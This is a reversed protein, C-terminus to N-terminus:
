PTKSFYDFSKECMELYTERNVMYWEANNQNRYLAIQEILYHYRSEEFGAKSTEKFGIVFASPVCTRYTKLRNYLNSSEGIKIWYQVEGNEPNFASHGVFYLGEAKPAKKLNTREDYFIPLNNEKPEFKKVFRNDWVLENPHYEWCEALEPISQFMGVMWEGLHNKREEKTAAILDNYFAEFVVYM